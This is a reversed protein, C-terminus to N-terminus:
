DAQSVSVLEPLGLRVPNLMAVGAVFTAFTLVLLGLAVESASSYRGNTVLVGALIPGIMVGISQAAPALVALRGTGSGDAIAIAGFQFPTLFVSFFFLAIVSIAFTINTVGTIVALMGLAMGISGLLFSLNRSLHMAAIAAAAAAAVGIAASAALWAGVTTHDLKAAEGIREAFAWYANTAATLLLASLLLLVGARKASSGLADAIATSEGETGGRLPVRHLLPLMSAFLVAVLIMVGQLGFRDSLSPGVLLIMAPVLAQAGGGIAFQRDPSTTQSLIAIGLTYIVGAGLVSTATRLIMLSLFDTAFATALAGAIMVVIAGAAAVRWNVRAIWWPGALSSVVGGSAEAAALMGLQTPSLRLAEAALGVYLPLILVMLAGFAYFACGAIAARDPSTDAISPAGATM